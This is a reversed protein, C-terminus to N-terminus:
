EMEAVFRKTIDRPRTFAGGVVSSFAGLEICRKDMEPTM